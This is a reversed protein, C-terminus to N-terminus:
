QIRYATKNTYPIIGMFGWVEGYEGDEVTVFYGGFGFPLNDEGFISSIETADGETCLTYKEDKLDEILKREIVKIEPKPM